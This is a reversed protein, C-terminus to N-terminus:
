RIAYVVQLSLSIELEGPSIATEVAVAEEYEYAVRPVPVIPPVQIGESIYTAKGLTIGALEALQEAKARADAM